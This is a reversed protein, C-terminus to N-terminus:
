QIDVDLTYEGIGTASDLVVYFTQAFATGNQYEIRDNSWSFCSAPVSCNALLLLTPVEGPATNADVSLTSGGPLLVQAFGEAGTLSLGKCADSPYSPILNLHDALTGEYFGSEIAGNGISGPCDESLIDGGVASLEIELRFDDTVQDFSDLVLYVRQPLKGNNVWELSEEGAANSATYADSGTLCSAGDQCDTVLYLSANDSLLTYKVTLRQNPEVSLPVFAEAGTADFGTCGSPGPNLDDAFTTFAGGYNGELVPEAAQAEACTDYFSGDLDTRAGITRWEADFRQNGMFTVDLARGDVTLDSRTARAMRLHVEDGDGLGLPRLDLDYAGDDELWEITTAIPTQVTLLVDGATGPLWRLQVVDADYFTALRMSDHSTVVMPTPVDLLGIESVAPWDNGGGITLDLPGEGPSRLGDELDLYFIRNGAQQFGASFTGLRVLSGADLTTLTDVFAPDLPSAEAVEGAAQPWATACLADPAGVCQALNAFGSPADVFLASLLTTGTPAEPYPSTLEVVVSGQEGRTVGTVPGTDGTPPETDVPQGDVNQGSCAGLAGLWLWM